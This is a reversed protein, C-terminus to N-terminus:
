TTLASTIVKRKRRTYYFRIVMTWCHLTSICKISLKPRFFFFSLIQIPCGFQFSTILNCQLFTCLIYQGSNCQVSWFWTSITFMSFPIWAHMCSWWGSSSMGLIHLFLWIYRTKPNVIVFVFTGWCYAWGNLIRLNLIFIEPKLKLLGIRICFENGM